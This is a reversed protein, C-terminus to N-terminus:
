RKYKSHNQCSTKIIWVFFQNCLLVITKYHTVDHKIFKFKVHMKKKLIKNIDTHLLSSM